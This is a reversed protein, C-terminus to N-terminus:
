TVEFDSVFQPFALPADQLIQGEPTESPGERPFEWPVSKGPQGLGKGHNKLSDLGWLTAQSKKLHSFERFNAKSMNMPFTQHCQMTTAQCDQTKM